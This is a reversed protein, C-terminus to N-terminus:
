GFFYSCTGPSNWVLELCTGAPAILHIDTVELISSCAICNVDEKYKYRAKLLLRSFSIYIVTTNL